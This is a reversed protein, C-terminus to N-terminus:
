VVVGPARARVSAIEPRVVRYCRHHAFIPALRSHEFSPHRALARELEFPRQEPLPLTEADFVFRAKAARSGFLEGALTTGGEVFLDPWWPCDVWARAVIKGGLEGLARELRRPHTSESLYPPKGPARRLGRLLSAVARGYTYRHSVFVVLESSHQWQMRLYERWRQASPLANFCVVLDFHQAPLERAALVTLRHGLGARAYVSRVRDAADADAVVATVATGRAALPLLHLGPIGAFGDVPGEAATEVAPAFWRELLAWVAGREYATGLGVDYALPKV